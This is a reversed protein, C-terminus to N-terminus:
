TIPKVVNKLNIGSLVRMDNWQLAHWLDTILFSKWHFIRIMDIFQLIVCTHRIYVLDHYWNKILHGLNFWLLVLLLISKTYIIHVLILVFLPLLRLSTLNLTPWKILGQFWIRTTMNKAKTENWKHNVKLKNLGPSAYQWHNSDDNTWTITEQRNLVFGNGYSTFLKNHMPTSPVFWMSVPILM